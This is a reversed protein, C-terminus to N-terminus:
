LLYYYMICIIIRDDYFNTPINKTLIIVIEQFGSINRSSSRSSMTFLLVYYLYLIICIGIESRTIEVPFQLMAPVFSFGQVIELPTFGTEPNVTTNIVLQVTRILDPWLLLDSMEKRKDAELILKAVLNSVDRIQREVHNSEPHYPAIKIRNVRCIELFLDAMNGVLSKKNDSAFSLPFSYYACYNEYFQTFVETAEMTKLLCIVTLQSYADMILLIYRFGERTIYANVKIDIFVVENVFSFNWSKM